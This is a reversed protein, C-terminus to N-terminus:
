KLKISLFIVYYIIIDSNYNKNFHICILSKGISKTITAKDKQRNMLQM